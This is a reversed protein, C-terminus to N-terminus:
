TARTMTLAHPVVVSNVDINEQTGISAYQFTAAGLPALHIWRVAYTGEEGACTRGIGRESLKFVAATRWWLVLWGAADPVDVGGYVDEGVEEDGNDGDAADPAELDWPALFCREQADEGDAPEDADDRAQAHVGEVDELLVWVVGGVVAGGGRVPAADFCVEGDHARREGGEFRQDDADHGDEAGPSTRAPAARGGRARIAM